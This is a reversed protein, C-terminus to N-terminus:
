NFFCVLRQHDPPFCLVKGLLRLAIRLSLFSYTLVIIVGEQYSESIWRDRSRARKVSTGSDDIRRIGRMWRCANKRRKKVIIFFLWYHLIYMELLKKVKMIKKM